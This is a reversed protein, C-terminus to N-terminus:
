SIWNHTRKSLQTISKSVTSIVIYNGLAARVPAHQSRHKSLLLLLKPHTEIKMERSRHLNWDCQPAQSQEGICLYYLLTHYLILLWWHHGWPTVLLCLSFPSRQKGILILVSKECVCPLCGMNGQKWHSTHCPETRRMERGRESKPHGKNLCHKPIHNM